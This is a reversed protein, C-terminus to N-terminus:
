STSSASGYEIYLDADGSGGSISINLTSYGANLDQTFRGIILLM